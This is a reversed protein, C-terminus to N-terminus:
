GVKTLNAEKLFEEKAKPHASEYVKMLAAHGMAIKYKLAMDKIRTDDDPLPRLNDDM